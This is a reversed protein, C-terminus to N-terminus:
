QSKTKYSSTVTLEPIKSNLNAASYLMYVAPVVSADRAMEIWDHACRMQQAQTLLEPNIGREDLFEKIEDEALSKIGNPSDLVM